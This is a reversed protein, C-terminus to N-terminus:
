LNLHPDPKLVDQPIPLATRETVAFIEREVGAPLVVVASAQGPASLNQGAALRSKAM